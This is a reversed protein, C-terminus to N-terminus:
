HTEAWTKGVKADGEIPVKYNLTEGARVFSRLAYEIFRPTDAVSVVFQWEDHIDGAKKADIKERRIYEDLFISAQKMIRSEDGQLLYPIVMHPSSVLVRSGDILTIRGSRQLEAQLRSILRPLGPVQQFFKKKASKAEKLDVNAEAAIRADGAGMLTAYTITKTLSRTPLGMRQQNASHPDESLIAETFQEDELYNALVRLQIGKADVGVLNYRSSDGCNWLDRSEYTWLGKEGLVPGEPGSRVAPINASNPNDHRYRLTGALWLNGHVAGTSENYNNLWNNIMNARSNTVIWTALAKAAPNDTDESFKTLSEENVKPNGAKTFSIPTWGAALLKAVRQPPSGLNFAVWDLAEYGGDPLERLEPYQARHREYNASYSGDKRRCRAFTAVVEFSPPWFKYVENKLEEERQRLQALLAHAGKANFPFGYRKQKNQIINWSLHELEPGKETFGVQLMRESMKLYVRKTVAVDNRCYTLMEESYKTFDKHALKPLRVRNGWAELSHGGALSPSYLMSLVFTDVVSSVPVRAGWLRNLVVVDFAIFNHGVLIKDRSYWRNFEEATEFTHKEDTLANEVCVVFIQTVSDLLGDTEIDCIWHNVTPTLYM